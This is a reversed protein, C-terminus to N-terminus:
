GQGALLAALRAATTDIEWVALREGQAYKKFWTTQRKAYQRTAANILEPLEIASAGGALHAQAQKYGISQMPKCTATVGAARLARVEEVLGAALMAATRRAIAAHLERRPPDLIVTATAQPAQASATAPALSSMPRGLLTAIELGRVLRVRDNPHVAAARTPDVQQLRRALEETPLANLERRLADDKPLNQHFEQALLARLYLGTGGVVVATRGRAGIEALAAAADAAYRAADYDDRWEAVDILHHPVAAREAATPKAAGIDFRRYVQVSDCSVIEAGSRAAVALAM